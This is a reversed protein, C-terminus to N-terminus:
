SSRGTAAGSPRSRRAPTGGQHPISARVVAAEPAIFEREAQRVTLVSCPARRVVREAVSGMLLRDFSSRGHTGIVILDIKAGTAYDVIAAAPNEALVLVPKAHLTRRDDETLHDALRQRNSAELTHPDPVVPKLFYNEAVHLLHLRAGFVRGLEKGYQLATASAPDFDTAVLINPVVFDQPPNRVVMVPCPATRVVREAVSGMVAHSVRGRGHTGMVILNTDREQAFAIIEDSPIGTRFHCGPPAATAIADKPDGVHLVDLEAGFMQALAAAYRMAAVSTAGFDHPVLIRTLAIMAM